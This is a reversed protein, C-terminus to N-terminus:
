AASNAKGSMVEVSAPQYYVIARNPNGLRRVGFEIIRTKFYYQQDSTFGSCNKANFIQLDVSYDGPALLLPSFGIKVTSIGQQLDFAPEAFEYRENLVGGAMGLINTTSIGDMRKIGVSLVVQKPTDGADLDLLLCAPEGAGILEASTGAANLLSTGVLRVEGTGVFEAKPGGAPGSLLPENKLMVEYYRDCVAATDGDDAIKGDAILICRNTLRKISWINHSVFLATTGSRTISHIRDICKQVFRVDGTALAEDVILIEPEQCAAVAFSLRARMGTSYSTMPSDIYQGLESFDIIWDRKQRAEERSMGLMMCGLDINQLGTLRPHFGLGLALVAAVRGNVTVRGKTPYSIGAIIKLLTTKGAGNPGIVGIVEGKDVRVNIDDLAVKERYYTNWFLVNQKIRSTVLDPYLRFVKRLGSIEIAPNATM